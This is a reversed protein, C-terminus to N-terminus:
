RKFWINSANSCIIGKQHMAVNSSSMCIIRTPPKLGESFYLDTPIIVNGVSHFTMFAMNWVVLWILITSSAMNSGGPHHHNTVDSSMLLFPGIPSMLGM